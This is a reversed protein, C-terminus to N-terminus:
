RRNTRSLWNGVFARMNLSSGSAAVRSITLLIPSMRMSNVELLVLVTVRRNWYSRHLPLLPGGEFARVATKITGAEFRTVLWREVEVFQRFEALRKDELENSIESALAWQEDTLLLQLLYAPEPFVCVSAYGEVHIRLIRDAYLLQALTVDAPMKEPLQEEVEVTPERGDWADGFRASGVFHTARILSRYGAPDIPWRATNGWIFHRPNRTYALYAQDFHLQSLM